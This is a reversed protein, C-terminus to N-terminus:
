TFSRGCRSGAHLGYLVERVGASCCVDRARLQMKKRERVEIRVPLAGGGGPTDVSGRLAENRLASDGYCLFQEGFLACM